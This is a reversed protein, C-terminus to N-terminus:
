IIVDVRPLFSIPKLHGFIVEMSAYLIVFYSVGILVLLAGGSFKAQMYRRQHFFVFILRVAIPM